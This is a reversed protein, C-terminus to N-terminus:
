ATQCIMKTFLELKGKLGSELQIVTDVTSKVSRNALILDRATSAPNDIIAKLKESEANLIHAISKEEMAISEIIDAVADERTTTGPLIVPMGM